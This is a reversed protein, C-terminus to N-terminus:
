DETIISKRNLEDKIRPVLAGSATRCDRLRNEYMKMDVLVFRELAVLPDAKRVLEKKLIDNMKEVSSTEYEGRLRFLEAASWVKPDVKMIWKQFKKSQHEIMRDRKQPDRNKAIKLYAEQGVAGFMSLANKARHRHDRVPKRKQVEKVAKWCGKQGDLKIINKSNNM